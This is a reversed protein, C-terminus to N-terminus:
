QFYFYSSVNGIKTWYANWTFNIFLFCFFILPHVHNTDSNSVLMWLGDVHTTYNCCHQLYQMNVWSRTILINFFTECCLNTSADLVSMEIKATCHATTSTLSTLTITPSNVTITPITTTPTPITTTPTSTATVTVSIRTSVPSSLTLHGPLLSVQVYASHHCPCGWQRHLYGSTVILSWWAAQCGQQWRRGVKESKTIFVNHVILFRKERWEWRKHQVNYLSLGLILSWISGFHCYYKTSWLFSTVTNSVKVPLGTLM